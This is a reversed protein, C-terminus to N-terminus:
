RRTNLRGSTAKLLDSMFWQILHLVFFIFFVNAAFICLLRFTGLADIVLSNLGGGLFHSGIGSFGIFLLVAFIYFTATTAQKLTAWRSREVTLSPEAAAIGENSLNQLSRLRLITTTASFLSCACLVGFILLFGRDLYSLQTWISWLSYPPNLM